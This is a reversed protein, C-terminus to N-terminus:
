KLSQLYAVIERSELGSFQALDPMQAGPKLAQAHVIWASLNATNNDLMGGAIRDRSAVHTLDPGVSGLAATGRVTHCLPCAAQDFVKMGERAMPDTPEAAPARQHEVWRAFDAPTEAIVRVRMNAHQMGCFEACEGEYVGPADARIRIHNTLGPVLDVKGHLKPVWFSHIVDASVLELDINRGTPIHIETPASVSLDTDGFLYQADFWWRHGTVRILPVSPTGAAHEMPYAGLTQLTLVFVLALIAAPIAFGGVLIWSQGESSAAVPAHEALSGRRRLVLLVILIWVVVTVAVFLLLVFWGLHAIGRAAPGAPSM